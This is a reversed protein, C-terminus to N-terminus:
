NVSKVFLDILAKNQNKTEIIIEEDELLEELTFNDKSLIEDIKSSIASM